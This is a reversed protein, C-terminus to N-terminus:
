CGFILVRQLVLAQRFRNSLVGRVIKEAGLMEQSLSGVGVWIGGIISKFWTRIWALRM